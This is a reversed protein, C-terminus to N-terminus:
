SYSINAPSWHMEFIVQPNEFDGTGHAHSPGVGKPSCSKDWEVLPDHVFTELISLITDKHLRLM